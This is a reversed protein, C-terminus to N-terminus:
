KCSKIENINVILALTYINMYMFSIVGTDNILLAILSTSFIIIIKLYTNFYEKKLIAILKKNKLFKIIFYMQCVLIISWPPVIIMMFLQKIKRFFIESLEIFGFSNIRTFLLGLHSKSESIMDIYVNLLFILGGFTLLVIITKTDLKNYFFNFYIIIFFLVIASLYGGVNAGYRSSLTLIIIGMYVLLFLLNIGKNKIIKKFNLYCVCSTALLIGMIENNFGYFRGGSAINNYGIFSNYIYNKNLFISGVIFINTILSLYNIIYKDKLIRSVIITLIFLILFYIYINKEVNFPSLIFTLTIIVIIYNYINIKAKKNKSLYVVLQLFIIFGHLLYKIINLNLYSNFNNNVKFLINKGNITRIPNGILNQSKENYSNIITPFIDLNTVIGERKTTNSTLIGVDNTIIPVLTKNMKVNIDGNINRPFIIVRKDHNNMLVNNLLKAKEGKNYSIVLVDVKKFFSNIKRQLEFIEYTFNEGYKIIGESNNVLLSTSDNGLYGIKINKKNLFESLLIEKSFNRYKEKLENIIDLYGKIILQNGEKKIGKFLGRTINVKKGTAMSMFFSEDNFKKLYNNTNVNMIGLAYDENIDKILKFDLSDLVVILIKENEASVKLPSFLIIIFIIIIIKLKM